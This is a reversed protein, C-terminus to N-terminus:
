DSAPNLLLIGFLRASANQDSVFRLLLNAKAEYLDAPLSIKYTFFGDASVNDAKAADLVVHYAYDSNAGLTVEIAKFDDAQNFTLILDMPAKAKTVDFIYSFYGNARVQRFRRGKFSGVQSGKAELRQSFEWNNQDFNTLEGVVRQRYKQVQALKATRQQAAQSGAQQWQFYLGYRRKFVQYYPVFNIHEAIGPLKIQLLYGDTQAALQYTTKAAPLWQEWTDPSTLTNISAPNLTAIRVLIGNPRDAALQYDDLVGALAYPGYRLAIYQSNDKTASFTLAMPFHLTLREGAVVQPMTIFDSADEVDEQIGNRKLTPKGVCWDPQRFKLDLPQATAQPTLQCVKVDINGKARDVVMNLRLNPEPLIVQNSFYGSIYLVDDEIFYYSDGLKTFSEIGTGTCCWFEDFPRNFVKQYGAAMPQFYTMMGTEPNQSGLIANTYTRDYYDLYQKAGTIKFLERSLKLMNYTNCTECTTAGDAMFADHYLAGAQHFHESQSNGGTVYTHDAVVIQWFNEAAQLYMLLQAQATEDLYQDALKSDSFIEYRRLAGILKPITTNAHKGPLVDQGAALAQFLDLEDFHTAAVLHREDGTLQFLQYLADNMGGYEVKLLQKPDALQSVRHYVYNGFQDAVALAMNAMGRNYAQLHQYSAILGALIKHLDYWPVIVNEKEKDPIVKGEVEDLAVERFASIYGASQPKIKAYAQQAHHLGTISTELKALLKSRTVDDKAVDLSQALASLYHGFFHGRFNHGDFREWGGYPKAATPTLGAVQEFGYLFRQPDLSLLYNITNKQARLVEPDTVQVDQLPIDTKM